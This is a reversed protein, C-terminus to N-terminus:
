NSIIIESEVLSLLTILKTQILAMVAVELVKKLYVGDTSSIYNYILYLYSKDYLTSFLM